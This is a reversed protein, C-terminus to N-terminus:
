YRATPPWTVTRSSLNGVILLGFKPDTCAPLLSKIDPGETLHSGDYTIFKSAV